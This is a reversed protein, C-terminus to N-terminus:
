KKDIEIETIIGSDGEVSSPATERLNLARIQALPSKCGKVSLSVHEAARAQQHGLNM